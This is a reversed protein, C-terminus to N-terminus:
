STVPAVTNKKLADLYGCFDAVLGLLEPETLGVTRAQGLDQFEVVSFANRAAKAVTAIAKVDGEDALKFHLGMDLEPDECLSRWVVAPDISRECIGDFFRYIRRGKLRKREQWRKVWGFGLM